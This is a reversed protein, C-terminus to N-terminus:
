KRIGYEWDPILKCIKDKNAKFWNEDIVILVLDPYYKQFRKIKTKSGKDMYGKVEHYEPKEKGSIKVRFDPLYSVKGRRINPFWFTEPEHEWSEIVGNKKLFELYRGYNAEWLSRFYIDTGGVNRWGAKHRTKTEVRVEQKTTTDRIVNLKKIDALKWGSM